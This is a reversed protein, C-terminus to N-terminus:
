VRAECEANHEALIDCVTEYVRPSCHLVFISGLFGKTESYEIGYKVFERRLPGRMLAGAEVWQVSM